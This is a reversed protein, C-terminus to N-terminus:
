IQKNEKINYIISSCSVIFFFCLAKSLFFNNKMMSKTFNEWNTESKSLNNVQIELYKKECTLEEVQEDLKQINHSLILNDHTLVKNQETQVQNQEQSELLKQSIEKNINEQLNLKETLESIMKNLEFITKKSISLNEKFTENKNKTKLLKKKLNNNSKKLNDFLNVDFYSESIVEIDPDSDCLFDDQVSDSDSQVVDSELDIESLIINQDSM